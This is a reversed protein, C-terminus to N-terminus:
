AQDPGGILKRVATVLDQTEFPKRLVPQGVRDLFRGIDDDALYATVFVVRRTMAPYAAMLQQYFELGNMVPMRVDTVVAAFPHRKLQALGLSGDEAGTVLYGASGLTRRIATRASDDDEIVLVDSAYLDMATSDQM